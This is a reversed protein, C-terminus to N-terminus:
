THILPSLRLQPIPKHIFLMNSIPKFTLNLSLSFPFFLQSFKKIQLSTKSSFLTQTTKFSQLSNPQRHL